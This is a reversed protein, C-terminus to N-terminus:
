PARDCHQCLMPMLSVQPDRPIASRNAERDGSSYYRDLRIWHMERGRMVEDKGVIPINNENQCAVVCANCGNCLNLDISMGWQQPATFRPIEYASGGRPQETVRYELPKDQDKGYIPPSHAEMGMEQAFNPNEKYFGANGERVIARGEMSWHEQTNALRYQAGTLRIQAGALTGAGDSLHLPYADFGTGKGVRGVKTRGYGLTVVVSFDPLGPQIHVPGRVTRGGATLEALPAVERGEEFRASKKAVGGGILFAGEKTDYGLEEALVPSILIANDWALKTIPDPCEQLWGNNNYRGDWVCADPLVRVELADRWVEPVSLAARQVLNRARSAPFADGTAAFGSGALFGTSLFREFATTRDGEGSIEGFTEVVWEYPDTRESGALRALIELEPIGEFLPLIVPQVPVYTGDATRGDSWAELFHTAAIHVNSQLSTEDYYYGYRIVTGARGQLDAWDLDAPADYVPNGGLILLTEVRGRRLADALEAISAADNQPIELYRLLRRRAGILENVYAVLQHVEPPLHSGAVLVSDGQHHLLDEVCTEIWGDRVAFAATRDRLSEVLEPEVKLQFFVEAAVRAAIAPIQSTPARLRHDAMTGTASFVSEVQYLRSMADAETSHRVKRGKSFGQANGIRGPERQLFDSDLSLIRMARSFDVDARVPKGFLAELGQDANRATVPEYEAWIARPFREKLERVLRARTPSSSPAALVALGQGDVARFDDRVGAILERVEEESLNRNGRSSRRVRDPDYLDLIAGQAFLDTAGGYPQYKGNGELKTPRGGHTEAVLPLNDSAHPFSTAYYVPLGPAQRTSERDFPLIHSEPRRCGAAGVGALAFSAAMIKLFHRRNVGEVESAGQPFERDVWDRFAPTGALDDLSRWYRPGSLESDSPQPPDSNPLKM